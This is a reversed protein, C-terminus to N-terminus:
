LRDHARAKEKIPFLEQLLFQTRPPIIAAPYAKEVLDMGDEATEFGCMKYLARIDDTDREVRAALLKMALLFRPSAAAVSLHHGEYVGARDPDDGPLFAKAADNLWDAELGLRESVARSAKRVEASPAFVADVDVISRRVDYALAMAGGVVFVEGRIGVNGLEEDLARLARLLEKRDLLPM